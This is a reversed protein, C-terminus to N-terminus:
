IEDADDVADVIGDPVRLRVLMDGGGVVADAQGATPFVARCQDAAESEDGIVARDEADDGAKGQLLADVEDDLGGALDDGMPALQRDHTRVIRQLLEAKGGGSRAMRGSDPEDEAIDLRKRMEHLGTGVGDEDGGAELGASQGLEVAQAATAHGYDAPGAAEGV